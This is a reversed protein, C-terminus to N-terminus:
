AIRLEPVLPSSRNDHVEIVVDCAEVLMRGYSEPDVGTEAIPGLEHVFVEYESHDGSRRIHRGAYAGAVEATADTSNSVIVHIVDPVPGGAILTDLISEITSAANRATVICGVTARVIPLANARDRTGALTPADSEAHTHMPLAQPTM